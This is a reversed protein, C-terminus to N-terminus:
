KYYFFMALSGLGAVIFLIGTIIGFVKHGFLRYLGRQRGNAPDVAWNKGLVSGIGMVIFIVAMVMWIYSPNETFFKEAKEYYKNLFDM